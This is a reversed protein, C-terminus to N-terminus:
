RRRDDAIAIAPDCVITSTTEMHDCVIASRIAIQSGRDYPFWGKDALSIALERRKEKGKSKALFIEPTVPRYNESFLFSSVAFQEVNLNRQLKIEKIM